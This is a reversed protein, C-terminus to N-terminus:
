PKENKVVRYIDLLHKITEDIKSLPLQTAADSLAKEPNPHTEMFISDAGAALAAKALSLVQEPQGGTITGGPRQVSHTADYVTKAGFSKMIHFSGM